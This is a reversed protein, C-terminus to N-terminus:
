CPSRRGVLGACLVEVRFVSGSLWVQHERSSSASPACARSPSGAREARRRPPSIERPKRGEGTSPPQLRPTASNKKPMQQTCPPYTRGPLHERAVTLLLRNYPEVPANVTEQPRGLRDAQRYGRLAPWRDAGSFPPPRGGEGRLARGPPSFVPERPVSAARGTRRAALGNM